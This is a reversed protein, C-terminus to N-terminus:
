LLLQARKSLRSGLRQFFLFLSGGIALLLWVLVSAAGLRYSGILDDVLMAVSITRNAVLRSLGFDGVAWFACFGSLISISRVCQPFTIFSFIQNWSAGMTRAVEIQNRLSKVDDALLLRYLGPLVSMVVGFIIALPAFLINSVGLLLFGFGIIPISPSVYSLLFREFYFHPLGFCISILFIFSVLGAGFGIMASGFIRGPLVSWLEAPISPSILFLGFVSILVLITGYINGPLWAISELNAFRRSRLSTQPSYSIVIAGTILLQTTALGFAQAFNGEIIIKQYTLVEFTIAGVAGTLLPISFSGFSVVFVLIFLNMLDSKMVPVVLRSIIAFRSAGEVYALEIMGGARERLKTMLVAGVLGSLTFTHVLVTGWLGFPFPKIVNMVSIVVFLSPVFSPLLMWPILKFRARALGLAIAFGGLLSFVGSLAAQLVTFSLVPGLEDWAPLDWVKIKAIFILYPFILFLVVLVRALGTM